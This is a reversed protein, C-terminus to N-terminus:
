IEVKLYDKAMLPVDYINGKPSTVKLRIPKGSYEDAQYREISKVFGQDIDAENIYEYGDVLQSILDMNKLNNFLYLFKETGAKTAIELRFYGDRIAESYIRDDLLKVNQFASTIAILYLNM